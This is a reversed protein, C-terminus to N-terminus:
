ENKRLADIVLWIGFLTPLLLALSRPSMLSGIFPITFIVVGAIDQLKPRQLDPAPNADGKVVFGKREDGSIVRHTFTGVPTGDFRKAVYTVVDGIQPDRRSVPTTIVVDGPSIVPEMSGTLVVRAKIVGGFSFVSFTVLLVLFGYGFFLYTQYIRAKLREIGSVVREKPTQVFDSARVAVIQGDLALASSLGSTNSVTVLTFSNQKATEEPPSYWVNLNPNNPFLNKAM